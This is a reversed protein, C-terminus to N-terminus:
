CSIIRMYTRLNKCLFILFDYKKSELIKTVFTISNLKIDKWNEVTDVLFKTLVIYLKM